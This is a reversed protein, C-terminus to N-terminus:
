CPWSRVNRRRRFMMTLESRLLRTSFLRPRPREIAASPRAGAPESLFPEVLSM